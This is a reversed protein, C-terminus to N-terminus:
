AGTVRTLRTSGSMGGEADLPFTLEEIIHTEGQLDLRDRTVAIVDGPEWRPDVLSDFSIQQSLGAFRRLQGEAATLAMDDDSIMESAFFMPKRGFSGPGTSYYYTPSAEDEDTAVGRPIDGTAGVNEGTAIVRNFTDTRSLDLSVQLLNEAEDLNAVPTTGSDIPKMTCVGSADHYLEAGYAKALKQAFEWPDDGELAYLKPVTFGPEDPFDTLVEPNATVLVDEIAAVVNTGDAIEYASEFKADSIKQARDMGTVRIQLDGGSDDTRATEIRLTALRVRETTGDGYDIGRAVQIENGFPVLVNSSQSPILGLTGDDVVTFDGTSRILSNPDVHVSGETIPLDIGAPLITARTTLRHDAYPNFRASASKM